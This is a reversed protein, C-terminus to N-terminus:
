TGGGADRRAFVSLADADTNGDHAQTLIEARLESLATELSKGGEVAEFIDDALTEAPTWRASQGEVEAQLLMIAKKIQRYIEDAESMPTREPVPIGLRGCIEERVARITEDFTAGSSGAREEIQDMLDDPPDFTKGCKAAAAKMEDILWEVKDRNDTM